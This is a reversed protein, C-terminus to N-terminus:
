ELRGVARWAFLGENAARACASEPQLFDDAIRQDSAAAEGPLRPWGSPGKALATGCSRDALWRRRRAAPTMRARRAASTTARERAASRRRRRIARPRARARCC